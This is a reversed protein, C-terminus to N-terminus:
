HRIKIRVFTDREGGIDHVSVSYIISETQRMLNIQLIINSNLVIHELFRM